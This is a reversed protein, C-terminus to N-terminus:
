FSLSAPVQERSVGFKGLAVLLWERVQSTGRNFDIWANIVDMFRTDPERQMAICSPLAVLPNSLLHYSGLQPNKGLAALGLIAALVHVDARGSAMALTCDDRSKFGTLQAKPCYRKAVVEHLSGIDYVIRVDPKNIDDWTAPDLGKRVVAGIPHVIAAHCFGIALARQPTPNLAFALDVKNSQLDLVSNGYTSEVYELKADFVKAIDSAMDICAGSWEGTALDKQFYPLEGPLAAIRLVKTRRVRDFTVENASQAQASGILTAAPLVAAAGALSRRGLRTTM